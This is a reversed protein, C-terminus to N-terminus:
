NYQDNLPETAQSNKILIIYQYFDVTVGSTPMIDTTLWISDKSFPSDKGNLKFITYDKTTFNNFVLSNYTNRYDVSYNRDSTGSMFKCNEYAYAISLVKNELSSGKENMSAAIWKVGMQEKQFIHNLGWQGYYKGKPLSEYVQKFNEYMRKDRIKDFEYHNVSYAEDM